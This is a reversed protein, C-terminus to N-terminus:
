GSLLKLIHFILKYIWEMASLMLQLSVSSSLNSIQPNLVHVQIIGNEAKIRVKISWLMKSTVM